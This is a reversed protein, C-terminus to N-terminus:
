SGGAGDHVLLFDERNLGYESRAQDFARDMSEHWTDGCFEGKRTYRFMMCGGTDASPEIEVREPHPLPAGSVIRGDVIDVGMHVDSQLVESVRAVYKM